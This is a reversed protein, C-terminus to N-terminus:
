KWKMKMVHFSSFKVKMEIYIEKSITTMFKSLSTRLLDHYASMTSKSELM